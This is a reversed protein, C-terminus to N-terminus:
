RCALCADDLAMIMTLDSEITLPLQRRALCNPKARGSDTEDHYVGVLKAMKSWYTRKQKEESITLLILNHSKSVQNCTVNTKGCLYTFKFLNSLYTNYTIIEPNLKIQQPQTIKHWSETKNNKIFDNQLIKLHIAM